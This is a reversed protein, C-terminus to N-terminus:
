TCVRVRTNRRRAFKATKGANAAHKSAALV